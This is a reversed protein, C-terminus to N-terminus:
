PKKGNEIPEMSLDTQLSAKIGKTIRRVIMSQSPLAYGCLPCREQRTLEEVSSFDLNCASCTFPFAQVVDSCNPCGTRGVNQLDVYDSICIYRKCEHCQFYRPEAIETLCVQCTVNKPPLPSLLLMQSRIVLSKNAFIEKEITAKAFKPIELPKKEITDALQEIPIAKGRKLDSIWTASGISLSGRLSKGVASLKKGIRPMYRIVTYGVGLLISLAVLSTLIQIPPNSAMDNPNTGWLIEINDNWGDDDSDPDHPNTSSQFEQLNTLGDNDPDDNSDQLSGNLGNEYEYGDPLLDSDSDTRSPSTGFQYELFNPLQDNDPDEMRDLPDGPFLGNAQEWLNPMGDSDLDTINWLRVTSDASASALVNGTPNFSISLVSSEHGTLNGILEGKSLSPAPYTDWFLLSRDSGGSALLMGDPSFDVTRVWDTHSTLNLVLEGTDVDNLHVGHDFSGSALVSEQPHFVISTVSDSHDEITHVPKQNSINWLIVSSDYSGSALLDSSGFAVTRVSDTHGTINAITEGSQIDWIKINNDSSGSALLTGESNFSLSWVSATHGTLNGIIQGSSVNWLLISRDFSGSALLEGSPNFALCYVSSTHGILNHVLSGTSTNWLKVTNDASGSAIMKGDPHFDVSWIASSHGPLTRILKSNPDIIVLPAVKGERGIKGGGFSSDTLTVTNGNIIIDPAILTIMIGFCIM